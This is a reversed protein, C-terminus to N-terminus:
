AVGTIWNLSFHGHSSLTRIAFGALAHSAELALGEGDLMGAHGRPHIPQRAPATFTAAFDLEVGLACPVIRRRAIRQHQAVALPLAFFDAADTALETQALNGSRAQGAAAVVGERAVFAALRGGGRCDDIEEPEGVLMRLQQLIQNSAAISRLLEGPRWATM